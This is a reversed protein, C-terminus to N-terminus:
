SVRHSFLDYRNDLRGFFKVSLTRFFVAFPLFFCSCCYSLFVIVPVGVAAILIVSVFRLGEPLVRYALYGGGIFVGAPLLLGLVTVFSVISAVVMSCFGLGIKVLIYTIFDRRNAKLIATTKSWAERIRINDKLMVITVFDYIVLSIIAAICMIIFFVIGLPLGALFIKLIAAGTLNTFTGMRSLILFGAGILACIILLMVGTFVLSFRFISNGQIKNKRFPIKISADNAVVDELFVFQFRSSLWAFIIILIILLAVITIIIPITLPSKVAKAIFDKIAQESNDSSPLTASSDPSAPNSVASEIKKKSGTDSPINLNFNGGGILSGALAAAFTLLFWKKPSFPRFLITTTWEFSAEIIETFKVM